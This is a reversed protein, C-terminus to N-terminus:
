AQPAPRPLLERERALRAAAVRSPVALKGLVASVHHAVTKPSIRLGVGTGANSLGDARRALIEMERATLGFPNDRTAPRPGRPIRALGRERLARRLADAAPRAALGDFIALAERQAAEDGDALARAREYPCG